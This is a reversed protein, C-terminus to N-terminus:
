SSTKRYKRNKRISEAAKNRSAESRPSMLRISLASKKLLYTYGGAQNIEKLSCMQPHKNEYDKLREIEMLAFCVMLAGFAFTMMDFGKAKAQNGIAINREDKLEIEIQRAIEPSGKLAQRSIINGMGHGFMGCGLGICVFPLVRFIGQPDENIGILYLGAALLIIGVSLIGIDIRKKM